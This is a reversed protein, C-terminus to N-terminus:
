LIKEAEDILREVQFGSDGRTFMSLLEGRGKGEESQVYFKQMCMVLWRADDLSVGKNEVVTGQGLVLNHSEALEQHFTITTHPSAFEGRLKYEALTTFMLTTTAVHPHSFQLFHLEAAQQTKVAESGAADAAASDEVPVERPM